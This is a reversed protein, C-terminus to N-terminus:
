LNLIENLMEYVPHGMILQIIALPHYSADFLADSGAHKLLINSM